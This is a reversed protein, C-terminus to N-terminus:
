PTTTSRADRIFQIVAFLLVLCVVIMAGQSVVAITSEVAGGTVLAIM